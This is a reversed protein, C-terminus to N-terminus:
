SYPSRPPRARRPSHRRSARGGSAWCVATSGLSLVHDEGPELIAALLQEGRGKGLGPALIEGGVHPMIGVKLRGPLGRHVVDDAHNDAFFLPGASGVECNGVLHLHGDGRLRRHHHQSESFRIVEIAHLRNNEM